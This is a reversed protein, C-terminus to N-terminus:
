ALQGSLTGKLERARSETTAGEMRVGHRMASMVAILAIAQPLIAPREDVTNIDRDIERITM